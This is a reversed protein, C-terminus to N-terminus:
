LTLRNMNKSFDRRFTAVGDQQERTAFVREYQQAKGFFRKSGRAEWNWQHVDIGSVIKGFHDFEAIASHCL